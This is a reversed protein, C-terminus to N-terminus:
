EVTARMVPMVMPLAMWEAPGDGLRIRVQLSGFLFPCYAPLHAPPVGAGRIESFM